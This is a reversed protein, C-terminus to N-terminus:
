PLIQPSKLAAQNSPSPNPNSQGPVLMGGQLRKNNQAQAQLQAQAVAQDRAKVSLYARHQMIRFDFEDQEYVPDTDDDEHDYKFRDVKVPDVDSKNRFALNRRDILM